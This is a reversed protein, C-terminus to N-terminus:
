SSVTDSSRTSADQAMDIKVISGRARAALTRIFALRQRLQLSDYERSHAIEPVSRTVANSQESTKELHGLRFLGELHLAAILDVQARADTIM